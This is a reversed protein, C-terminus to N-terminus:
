THKYKRALRVGGGGMEVGRTKISMTPVEKVNEHHSVCDRNLCLFNNLNYLLM